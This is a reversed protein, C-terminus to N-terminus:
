AIKCILVHRWKVRVCIYLLRSSRDRTNTVAGLSNETRLPRHVFPPQHSTEQSQRSVCPRQGVRQGADRDPQQKTATKLFDFSHDLNM